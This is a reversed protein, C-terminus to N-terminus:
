MVEVTLDGDPEAACVTLRDHLRLEQRRILMAVAFLLVREGRGGVLEKQPEEGDRDFQIVLAAPESRTYAPM